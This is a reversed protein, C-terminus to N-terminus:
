EGLWLRAKTWSSPRGTRITARTPSYSITLMALEAVTGFRGPDSRSPYGCDLVDLTPNFMKLGTGM